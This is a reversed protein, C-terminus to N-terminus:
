KVRYERWIILNQILSMLRRVGFWKLFAKEESLCRFSEEFMNKNVYEKINGTKFGIQIVTFENMCYAM